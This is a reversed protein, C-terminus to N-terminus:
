IVEKIEEAKDTLDRVDDHLRTVQAAMRDARDSLDADQEAQQNATSVMWNGIDQMRSNLDGRVSIQSEVMRRQADYTASINEGEDAIEVMAELESAIAELDEVARESGHIRYNALSQQHPNRYQMSRIVRLSEEVDEEQQERLVNELRMQTRYRQDNAWLAVVVVVLLMMFIMMQEAMM